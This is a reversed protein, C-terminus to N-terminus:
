LATSISATVVRSSEAGTRDAGWLRTRQGNCRVAEHSSSGGPSGASRKSAPDSHHVDGARFPRALGPEGHLPRKLLGHGLLCGHDWEADDVIFVLEHQGGRQGEPERQVM